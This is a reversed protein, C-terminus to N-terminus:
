EAIVVGRATESHREGMFPYRGPALPRWRMTGSSHGRMIKEIKLSASDFEETEDDENTITVTTPNNAKVHVEAPTFVHDKLSLAATNDEAMAPSVLLAAVCIARILKM